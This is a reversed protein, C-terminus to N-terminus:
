RVLVRHRFQNVTLALILVVGSIVRQVWINIDLIYLGTNISYLILIAIFVGLLDGKGGGLVVGGLVCVIIAELALTTGYEPRGSGSQSTLIIGAFSSLIGSIIYTSFQIRRVNIGAVRAINQSGGIVYLNRGFSTFKLLLAVIIFAILSYVLGIPIINFFYIRAIKLFIPDEILLYVFTLSITYSLGTIAISTGLTTIIPNIGVYKIFFGNIAGIIGGLIILLPLYYYIPWHLTTSFTTSLVCVISVISSVSLDFGGAIMVIFVGLTVISIVAINNTILRFNMISFFQPAVIWWFLLLFLYLIILIPAFSRTVLISSLVTRIKKQYSLSDDNINKNM